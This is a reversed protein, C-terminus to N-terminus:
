DDDGDPIVAGVVKGTTKVAGITTSAAVDVVKVVTCASLGLVLLCLFAPKAHKFFGLLRQNDILSIRSKNM